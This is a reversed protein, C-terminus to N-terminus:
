AESPFLRVELGRAAAEQMGPVVHSYVDLTMAISAHGLREQVVKPHVGQQLLMTAHAHRLDHFRVRGLGAQAAVKRFDRQVINHAHLPRGNAQCFVLDHDEYSDGLLRRHEVQEERLGQLEQALVGPLGVTRRSKATKPAKFFQQGGLRYFTQQVSATGFTFDVDQWRLGLLEGQRMGTMVAALYLRYYPSRKAQGLLLRVKEEDIAPMERRRKAPPRVLSM